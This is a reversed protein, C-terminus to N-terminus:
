NEDAGFLLIRDREIAQKAWDTPIIEWNSPTTPVIRGTREIWKMLYHRMDYPSINVVRKQLEEKSLGVGEILHGGGGTGRYSNIAVRYTKDLDFPSGDEMSVIKIRKGVPKSVDVKYNIGAASDFNYFSSKLIARGNNHLIPKDSGNTRFLLLYDDATKMTNLWLGYSFELYDKIEQGSLNMIYLLNEYSYLKFLDRVYVNGQEISTNFSLPAAFSIESNSIGLQASHIINIFASPGFYTDQSTVPASFYGIRRDVFEEVERTFSSFTSVFEPDPMLGHMPALKGDIKKSIINNEADLKVNICIDSVLHARSGPDAILISDGLNNAVKTILRDHDHGALIIDFGPVQQAVLMSANDNLAKEPNAGEYTADHGSHFLGVVIHPNENIQISDMWVRASEVMDAFEMNAWLNSSLWKPIGPTTLGLVAIRLGDREIVTYPKFYPKGTRIDITNASLWPFDFDNVLKIYVKPGAEIDHNGVTGVDYKMYNMVKSVLHKGTTDIFNAYYVTPQGQLIDGNDFLLVQQNPNERQKKVYTYVHAMGYDIATNNVYDFPFLVGHVDSTQIIKINVERQAQASFAICFLILSQFFARLIM